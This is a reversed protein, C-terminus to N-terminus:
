PSGLQRGYTAPMGVRPPVVHPVLELADQDGRAHDGHQGRAAGRDGPRGAAVVVRRVLGDGARREVARAVGRQLRGAAALDGLGLRTVLLAGVLDLDHLGVATLDVDVQVAAELHDARLAVVLVAVTLRAAALGTATATAAIGAAASPGAAPDAPATGASRSGLPPSRTASSGAPKVVAM